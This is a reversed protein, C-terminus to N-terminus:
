TLVVVEHAPLSRYSEDKNLLIFDVESLSALMEVFPDDALVCDVSVLLERGETAALSRITKFIQSSLGAVMAQQSLHLLAFQRDRLVRKLAHLHDEDFIKNDNHLNLLRKAVDALTVRACGVHEIAIGAAVNCLQIAESYSLGNAISYTLMALVTDGAGTVDKVERAHVPFDERGGETDFLSIGAESRTIMLHQISTADFINRAVLELPAQESVRAAAFAESLNPKILTAGAYKTFDIEKPDVIVPIAHERACGIIAALLSRSLLGKGYDSIAVVQVGQMLAPLQDIIAQEEKESLPSIEEYDVRVIQQGNAIVRNKVPTTYHPQRVVAHTEVGEKTLSNILRDGGSDNGVRGVAVVNAGLSILSLIVNGAGGARHEESQVNIVAVPAEPSIRKAKGFTYVDLLMDGVVMVRVTDLRCLIGLVATEPTVM